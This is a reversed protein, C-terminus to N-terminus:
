GAPPLPGNFMLIRRLRGDDVRKAVDIGEMIDHGQRDVIKWPYRVLDNHADVSSATVVETGPAASQYRGIREALIPVGKWRGTPDVLVADDTVSRELMRRCQDPDQENWARFYTAIADDV